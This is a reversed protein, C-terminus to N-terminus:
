YTYDHYCGSCSSSSYFFMPIDHHHLDFSFTAMIKPIKRIKRIRRVKVHYPDDDDISFLLPSSHHIQSEVVIVIM